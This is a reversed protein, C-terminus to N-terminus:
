ADVHVKGEGTVRATVRATAGPIEVSVRDGVRWGASRATGRVLLRINKHQVLVAVSQERDVLPPARLARATLPTGRRISRIAVLGEPADLLETMDLDLAALDIRTRELVEPGVSEGRRLDLKSTWATGLGEVRFWLTGQGRGTTADAAVTVPVRGARLQGVRLKTGRGSHAALEVDTLAHVSLLSVETSEFRAAVATCVQQAAQGLVTEANAAVAVSCSPPASALLIAMIGSIM